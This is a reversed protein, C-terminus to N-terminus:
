KITGAKFPGTVDVFVVNHGDGRGSKSCSGMIRKFRKTLDYYQSDCSPCNCHRCNDYAGNGTGACSDSVAQCVKYVCENGLVEFRVLSGIPRWDKKTDTYEMVAEERPMVSGDYLVCFERHDITFIFEIENGDGIWPDIDDFWIDSMLTGGISILNCKGNLHVVGFGREAVFCEVEDFWIVPSLLCMNGNKVNIYNYMGGMQVWIPNDESLYDKSEYDDAADLLTADKGMHWQTWVLRETTATGLKHSWSINGLRRAPDDAYKAGIIDYLQESTLKEM